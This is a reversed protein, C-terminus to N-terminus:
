SGALVRVRHARVRLYAQYVELDAKDAVEAAAGRPANEPLTVPNVAVTARGIAWKRKQIEVIKGIFNKKWFFESERTLHFRFFVISILSVLFSLLLSAVYFLVATSYFRSDKSIVRM